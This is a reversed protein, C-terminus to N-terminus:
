PSNLFQWGGDFYSAPEVPPNRNDNMVPLSSRIFVTLTLALTAV